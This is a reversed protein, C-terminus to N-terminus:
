TPRIDALRWLRWSLTLIWGYLVIMVARQVAGALSPTLGAVFSLALWANFLCLLLGAILTPTHLGRRWPSNGTAQYIAFPAVSTAILSVAGSLIHLQAPLTHGACGPDCAFIGGLISAGAVAYLAAGALRVGPQGSLGRVLGRTFLAFLLGYVVSWVRFLWAMPRESEGLESIFQQTHRYGSNLSALWFTVLVDIVIMAVGCFAATKVIAQFSPQKGM